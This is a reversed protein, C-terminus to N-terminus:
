HGEPRYVVTVYMTPRDSYRQTAVPITPSIHAMHLVRSTPSQTTQGVPADGPNPLVMESLPSTPLKTVIEPIPTSERIASGVRTHSTTGEAEEIGVIIHNVSLGGISSRSPSRSLMAPSRSTGGLHQEDDRGLIDLNVSSQSPTRISGGPLPFASCAVHDLPITEGEDLITYSRDPVILSGEKASSADRLPKDDDFVHYVRPVDGSPLSSRRQSSGEIKTEEGITLSFLSWGGTFGWRYFLRRLIVWVSQPGRKLLSLIWRCVLVTTACTRTSSHIM